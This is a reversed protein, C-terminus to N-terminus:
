KKNKEEMIAIVDLEPKMASQVAFRKVSTIDMEDLADVINGYKADDTSKIICIMTDKDGYSKELRNQKDYIVQRIGDENSFSSKKMIGINAALDEGDGEYYWVTNEKDLIITLLLEKNIKAKEEDDVKKPMNLEMANPKNLTTTLMFFTILLFALDVMPTLDVKTSMKKSRKKGGHKKKSGGEATNLEAM